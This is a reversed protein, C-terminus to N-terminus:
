LSVYTFHTLDSSVLIWLFSYSNANQSGTIWLIACALSIVSFFFVFLCVRLCYICKHPHLEELFCLSWIFECVARSNLNYCGWLYLSGKQRRVSNWKLSFCSGDTSLLLSTWPFAHSPKQLKVSVNFLSDLLDTCWLNCSLTLIMRYKLHFAQRKCVKAQM